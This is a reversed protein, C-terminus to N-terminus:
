DDDNEANERAEHAKLEAEYAKISASYADYDANNEASLAKRIAMTADSPAAKHAYYAAEAKSRSESFKAGLRYSEQALQEYMPLDQNAM